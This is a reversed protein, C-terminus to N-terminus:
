SLFLRNYFSFVSCCVGWLGFWIDFNEIYIGDVKGWKLRIKRLNM